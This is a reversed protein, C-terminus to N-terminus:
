RGDVWVLARGDCRWHGPQWVELEARERPIVPIVETRLPPPERVIIVEQAFAPAALVGMAAITAIGGFLGRRGPNQM